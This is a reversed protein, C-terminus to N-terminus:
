IIELIRIRIQDFERLGQFFLICRDTKIGKQLPLGVRHPRLLTASIHLRPHDRPIPLIDPCDQATGAQLFIVREPQQHERFSFARLVIAADMRHILHRFPQLPPFLVPNAFRHRQRIIVHKQGKFFPRRLHRIQPPEQFPLPRQRDQQLPFRIVAPDTHASAPPIQVPAGAADHHIICKVAHSRPKAEAPLIKGPDQFLSQHVHRFDTFFVIDGPLIDM